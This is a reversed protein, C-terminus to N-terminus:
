SGTPSGAEGARRYRLAEVVWGAALLCLTALTIMLGARFAEAEYRFVVVHDGKPVEVARYAGNAKLIPVESGDLFARWEPHWSDALVLFTGTNAKVSFELYQPTESLLSATGPDEGPHVRDRTPGASTADPQDCWELVVGRAGGSLIPTRQILDLAEDFDQAKAAEQALYWRPLANERRYIDL